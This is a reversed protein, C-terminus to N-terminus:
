SCNLHSFVSECYLKCSSSVVLMLNFFRKVTRGIVERKLEMGKEEKIIKM